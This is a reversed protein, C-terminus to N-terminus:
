LPVCLDYTSNFYIQNDNKNRRWVDRAIAAQRWNQIGLTLVDKTVQVACRQRPRGKRRSGGGPESEFVKRVTNSSDMLAVHGLWWLRQIKIRKVVDINDYLRVAGAELRIHCEGRDCFPESIKRLSKREFLDLPQEDSSTMTCTEAVYLLVPM